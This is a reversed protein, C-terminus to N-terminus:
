FPFLIWVGVVVSINISIHKQAALLSLGFNSQFFVFASIDGPILQDDSYLPLWPTNMYPAAEGRGIDWYDSVSGNTGWASILTIPYPPLQDGPDFTNLHLIANVTNFHSESLTSIFLFHHPVPQTRYNVM